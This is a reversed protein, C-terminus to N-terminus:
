RQARLKTESFAYILGWLLQKDGKLDITHNVYRQNSLQKAMQETFGFLIWYFKDLICAVLNTNEKM